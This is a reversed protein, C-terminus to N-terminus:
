HSFARRSIRWRRWCACPASVAQRSLRSLSWSCCSRRSFSFCRMKCSCIFSRSSWRWRSLARSFTSFIRRCTAMRCSRCLAMCRWNSSIAPSIGIVCSRRCCACVSNLRATASRSAACTCIVLWCVSIAAKLLEKWACCASIRWSCFVLWCNSSSCRALWFVSACSLPCNVWNCSLCCSFLPSVTSSARSSVAVLSTLRRWVCM